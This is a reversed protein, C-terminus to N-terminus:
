VSSEKLMLDRTQVRRRGRLRVTSRQIVAAAIMLWGSAALRVADRYLGARLGKKTWWFLMRGFWAYRDFNRLRGGPYQGTREKDLMRHASRLFPQVCHVSNAKHMRYLMTDPSCLLVSNGSNGLKAALDMLDLHFIGPSWGGVNDFAQRCVVFAGTYWGLHRDRAMLSEYEVFELRQPVATRPLVPAQGEFLRAGSLITAPHREGIILEYVDLAWPTLLDDGDLFILYEGSAVAAGRNRAEVAGLNALLPLLQVSAEYRKLVDLSGDRSGDDVVIVEKAPYAQSLASEVADKIFTEQNYCTIVISYRVRPATQCDKEKCASEASM